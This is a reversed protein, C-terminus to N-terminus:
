PTYDSVGNILTVTLASVADTQEGRITFDATLEGAGSVPQGETSLRVANMDFKVSRAPAGQATPYTWILSLKGPAGGSAALTFYTEATTRLKMSGGISSLGPEIAVPFENGDLKDDRTANNSYNIQSEMADGIGADNWMAKCHWGRPRLLPLAASANGALWAAAPVEDRLLLDLDLRPFDDDKKASLQFGNVYVGRLMRFMTGGLLDQITLYTLTSGGSTFTHTYPDAAGNTVSEGFCALLWFYVESLCLPVTRKATGPQRGVAPAIPDRSNHTEVGLLPDDSLPPSAVDGRQYSHVPTFAPAYIEFATQIGVRTRLDRGFIKAM